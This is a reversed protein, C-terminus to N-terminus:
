LISLTDGKEIVGSKIVRVFIGRDNELLKPLAKDIKSLHKCITCNQAVEVVVDGIKIHTEVPLHYPNFDILVNEGLVGYSMEIGKELALAYSDITTLLVSRNIDKAYFKDDLIGDKDLEICDRQFREIHGKKSIFLDMVTGVNKKM